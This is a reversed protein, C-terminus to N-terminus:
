DCHMTLWRAPHRRQARPDHQLPTLIAPPIRVQSACSAMGPHRPGTSRVLVVAGGEIRRLLRPFRCSAGVRVCRCTQLTQIRGGPSACPSDRSGRQPQVRCEPGICSAVGIVSGHIPGHHALRPRSSQWAGSASVRIEIDTVNGRWRSRPGRRTSRRGM